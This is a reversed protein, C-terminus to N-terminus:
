SLVEEYLAEYRPVVKDADFELTLRNLIGGQGLLREVMEGSPLSAFFAYLYFLDRGEPKADWLSIGQGGGTILTHGDPSFVVCSFTDGAAARDRRWIPAPNPDPGRLCRGSQVKGFSEQAM